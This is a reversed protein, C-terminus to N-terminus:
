EKTKGVLLKSDDSDLLIDLPSKKLERALIAVVKPECFGGQCRGAGPRVRRKVGKVTLAGANRHIIDVIEGESVHECRCIMQAFAPDKQVLAQKEEYNMRNIIIWPRREVRSEKPIFEFKKSVIENLVYESIAPASALGPSEIAAVNIFNPVDELEEIIFDHTSGSPRLGSYTRIVQNLPINKLTKFVEKRIYDLAPQTNDISEKDEVFESNPGLIVNHHITRAVLVGKGKDTPIPFITRHVFPTTQKDLLYYEGRRPTITFLKKDSVLNNIEDAYVGACNIVFKALYEAKTTKVVFHDAKKEISVVKNGLFLEVGNNCADEVAAIAVEWPSVIGTTPLDLAAVVSDSLNPERKHAEEASIISCPINRSLAQNYLFNLQPLEDEDVAVVFCGNREFDVKLEKCLDEYLENGRVNLKAKLSGEKPDHGSHIIASNASTSENAVDNDKDVLAVSCKFKSLDRAIMAGSIGAGIILFDYMNDKGGYSM